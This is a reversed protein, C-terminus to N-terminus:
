KLTLSKSLRFAGGSVLKFNRYILSNRDTTVYESIIM